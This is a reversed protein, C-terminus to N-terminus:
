VFKLVWLQHPNLSHLDGQWGVIPTGNDSSGYRLDVFTNAGYNQIKVVTGNEPFVGVPHIYWAQHGGFTSYQWGTIKTDNATGGNYLDLARGSAKINQIRFIPRGVDDDKWKVLKWQQNENLHAQYGICPTGDPPSTQGGSLDMATGTGFNVFAVTRGNLSQSDIM